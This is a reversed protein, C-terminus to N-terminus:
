RGSPRYPPVQNLLGAFWSDRPVLRQSLGRYTEGDLVLQAFAKPPPCLLFLGAVLLYLAATGLPQSLSGFSFATGFSSKLLKRGFLDVSYFEDLLLHVIFGLALFAGCLWAHAASASFVHFAVATTALGCGIGGPVTHVLGRHVTFRDLLNFLGYRILLFCGLWLAILEALSYRRGFTFVVLFGAVVALTAFTIRVPISTPLDIDPLLGGIVGLVFYGIVAQHPAAGAMVLVTAALGSVAAAGMLHTNFDAM